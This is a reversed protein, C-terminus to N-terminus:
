SARRLVLEFAQGNEHSADWHAVALGHRPAMQEFWKRSFYTVHAPV